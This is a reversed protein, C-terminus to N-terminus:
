YLYSFGARLVRNFKNYQLLTEGYGSFYQIFLGLPVMTGRNRYDYQLSGVIMTLEISGKKPDPSSGSRGTAMLTLEFLEKIGIVSKLTLQGYGMYQAIDTNEDGVNYIWWLRPIAILYRDLLSYEFEFYGRDWSRSDAAQNGGLGNSEHQWGGLQIYKLRKFYIGLKTKEYLDIRYFFEPSYNSEIFPSSNKFNFLDWLSKQTYAIYLGTDDKLGSWLFIRYAISIQFKCYQGNIGTGNIEKDTSTGFLFYNYHYLSVPDPFRYSSGSEANERVIGPKELTEGTDQAFLPVNVISSLFLMLLIAYIREM